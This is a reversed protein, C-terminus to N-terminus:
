KLQAVELGNKTGYGLIPQSNKIGIGVNYDLPISNAELPVTMVEWIGTFDDDIVGQLNDATKSKLLAGDTIWATRVTYSTKNFSSMFSSIYPVYNNGVKKVSISLNTGSSLYSDVTMVKKQAPKTYDQVYAYKLDGNGADYYAIHVGNSDDVVLDVHWGVFGDDIKVADSWKTSDSPTKNYTYFLGQDEESYWVVVAAPSTENTAGVAAYEGARSANATKVASYNMADKGGAIVHYRAGSTASGHNVFASSNGGVGAGYRFRVQGAASDYYVMYLANNKDTAIKPNMVRTSYFQGNYYGSEIAYGNNSSDYAWTSENGRTNRYFFLNNANRGGYTANGTGGTDGNMASGYLNGSPDVAVTTDYWQTFSTGLNFGNGASATTSKYAKVADSGSDYVFAITQNKDTGVRMTPYRVSTDSVVQTVNWVSVKCDDTLTSNNINNPQRNYYNKYLDYGSRGAAAAIFEGKAENSNENNLSRMGNVTVVVNGSTMTGSVNVSTSTGASAGNVSVAPSSGMNFGSLTFTERKTDNYYYVPYAGTASRGFISNNNGRKQANGVRNTIGTIYPVVDMKYIYATQKGSGDSAAAYKTSGDMSLISGGSTSVVPTGAGVALVQVKVDKEAVKAIKETNWNLVWSASHGESDFSSSDVYFSFGFDDWKNLPSSESASWSSTSATYAAMKYFNVASTGEGVSISELKAGSTGFMSEMGPISIYIATLRNKDSVNGKLVISGSVKPDRDNEGSTNTTSNFAEPLEDELEIHGQLDTFSSASASGYISNDNLGAWRFKNISAEPAESDRIAVGMYVNVKASQGSSTAETSDFITFSAQHPKDATCDTINKNLFDGLQMTIVATQANEESESGTLANGDADKLDVKSGSATIASGDNKKIDYTYFLSGNGGLIEPRIETKGKATIFANSSTGATLETIKNEWNKASTYLITTEDDDIKGNGNRDSGVTLNALRPANNSVYAAAAYTSSSYSNKEIISSTLTSGSSKIYKASDKDVYLLSVNKKTGADIAKVDAIESTLNDGTIAEYETITQNGVFGMSYNGAKDFVVYHLEVPGDPINKSFINAEWTYDSGSARLKEVMLDGDDPEPKSWYGYGYSNKDADATQLSGGSGETTTNDVLMALAVYAVTKGVPPNGSITVSSNETFATVKYMSGDIKILSNRHVQSTDTMGLVNLADSNRSVTKRLWYIGNDYVVTNDVATDSEKGLTKVETSKGVVVNNDTHNKEFMPNYVKNTKTGSVSDRRMFYFAVFGVGSQDSGGISSEKAKSTIKYFGSDNHVDPSIQYSTDDPTILEPPTNDYSLTITQRGVHLSNVADEAQIEFNLSGIGEATGLKYFFNIEKYLNYSGNEITVAESSGIGLAKFEDSENELTDKNLLILADGENQGAANKKQIKLSAIADKDTVKGTLYWQGSVFMDASYEKSATASAGISAAQVLYLDSIVPNDSDFKIWRDANISFKGDNDEAYVRLYVNNPKGETSLFENKTNIKEYWTSGDSSLNVLIAYDDATYGSEVSSTGAVWPSPNQEDKYTKRNYINYVFNEGNKVSALYDLDSAALSFTGTDNASGFTKGDWSSVSGSVYNHETSIIQMWVRQVAKNDNASGAVRVEAGQSSGDREPFSYSITPRDGQPDLLILHCEEKENGVADVGKIWLYMNVIKEFPNQSAKLADDDTIGWDILYDNFTEAHTGSVAEAGTKGDFNVTWSLSADKIQTYKIKSSIDAITNPTEVGRETWSTVPKLIFNGDDDKEEGTEEPKIDKSPSLAFYVKGSKSTTGQAVISGSSVQNSDPLNISVVPKTNDVTITWNQSTTKGANDTVTIEIKLEGSGTGCPIDEILYNKGEGYIGDDNTEVHSATKTGKIETGASDRLGSYAATVSRIGSSDDATLYLKITNYSGGFTHGSLINTWAPTDALPDWLNINSLSPAQTDVTSYLVSSPNTSDGYKNTGDTLYIASTVNATGSTFTKGYVDKVEFYIDKNGEYPHTTAENETVTFPISGSGANLSVTTFGGSDGLRYALTLNKEENDVTATLGDDDTVNFYLNDSTLWIRNDSSMVKENNKLMTSTVTVKPRDTNQDVRLSLPESYGINGASDKAACIIYFNAADTTADTFKSTDIDSLTWSSTGSFKGETVTYKTWGLSNTGSGTVENNDAPKEPATTVQKYYFGVIEKLEANDSASGTLTLLGNVDTTKTSSDADKPTSILVKPAETDVNVNAVTEKIFKGANDYVTASISINGSAGTFAKAKIKAEWKANYKSFTVKNEGEGESGSKTLTVTGYSNVDSEIDSEKIEHGNVSIVISKIGSRDGLGAVSESDKALGSIKIIESSLDPNTYITSKSNGTVEPAVMDVNLTFNNYIYDTSTVNDTTVPINYVTDVACNGAKDEALLVLYNSGSDFGEIEKEYNTTITAYNRPSTGAATLKIVKDKVNNGAPSGTYFVRKERITDATIKQNKGKVTEKLSENIKEINLSTDEDGAKKLNDLKDKIAEYEAGKFVYYYIAELGSADDEQTVSLPNTETAGTASKVDIFKGRITMSTNSGFTDFAYKGGVKKDEEATSSIEDNDNTGIRFFIDKGEGDILHIGVPATKDIEVSVPQESTNGANDTATIIITKIEGDNGSLTFNEFEWDEPSAAKNDTLGDVGSIELSKLGYRDSANGSIKFKKSQNKYKNTSENFSRTENNVYYKGASNKYAELSTPEYFTLTPILPPTVDRIMTFAAESNEGAINSGSVTIKSKGEGDPTFVAKWSKYKTANASNYNEFGAEDSKLDATTKVAAESDSTIVKGTAVDNDDFELSYASYQVSLNTGNKATYGSLNLENVGSQADKYLGYLTVAGEKIYVSELSDEIVKVDGSGVQYANTTLEAASTDVNIDIGDSDYDSINGAKDTVRLYLKNKGNVPLNVVGSYEKYEEEDGVKTLMNWKRSVNGESDSQDTGYEISSVGSLADTAKAVVTVSQSKFWKDSLSSLSYTGITISDDKFAPGTKDVTIDATKSVPNGAFDNATVTVTYKGEDTLDSAKVTYTFKGKLANEGATWSLESTHSVSSSDAKKIIELDLSEIQRDTSGDYVNGTITLSDGEAAGLFEKSSAFDDLSPACKDYRFYYTKSTSLGAKDSARVSITHPTDEKTNETGSGLKSLDYKYTWDESLLITDEAENDIKIKLEKLGSGVDSATGTIYQIGSGTFWKDTAASTEAANTVTIEPATKDFLVNLNEQTKKGDITENGSGDEVTIEFNYTKETSFVKSTWSGDNNDTFTIVDSSDSTNKASLSKIGNADSATVVLYFTDADNIVCSNDTVTEEEANEDKTKYVKISVAPAAQDVCFAQMKTESVNDANDLAKVYLTYKGEYLLNEESGSNGTGLYKTFSWDEGSFKDVREEWDSGPYEPEGDSTAKIAYLVTKMGISPAGDKAKGNFASSVTSLSQNGFSSDGPITIETVEPAKRDISVTLTKSSYSIGAKDKVTFVYEYVATTGEDPMDKEVLTWETKESNLTVSGRSSTLSDIGYEDSIKGRIEYEKGIAFNSDSSILNYEKEVFTEYTKISGDGNFESVPAYGEMTLEPKTAKYDWEVEKAESKLGVGDTVQVVIKKKGDKALVGGYSPNESDKFKGDRIISLSWSEAGALDTLWEKSTEVDILKVSIGRIGAGEDSATGSFRFSNEATDAAAPCVITDASPITNDVKITVFRARSYSSGSESKIVYYVSKHGALDEAPISDTYTVDIDKELSVNEMAEAGDAPAADFARYLKLDESGTYSYKLSVRFTKFTSDAEERESVYEPTGSATLDFLGDKPALYFAYIGSIDAEITNKKTDTGEVCVKYYKNPKLGPFNSTSLPDTKINTSNSENAIEIEEAASLVEGMDDCEILYMKLTSTDIAYGDRGPTVSITLTIGSDRDGNTVQYVTEAEDETSSNKMSEGAPLAKNLGIVTFTPNNKPNLQFTGTDIANENLAQLVKEVEDTVAASKSSESLGYTGNFMSYLETTKYSDLSKGNVETKELTTQFYYQHQCNGDKDSDTQESGDVPYRQAEDYAYIKCYLTKDGADKESSGYIATYEDTGYVAVTQDIAAPVNTKTITTIENKCEADSYVIVDIKNINNDDAAKGMINFIQGYTKIETESDEADKLYQLIVVPPTNDIIYSRAFSNKHGGNDTITVTAEYKGDLIESEEPKIQFYWSGEGITGDFNWVDKTNINKLVLKASTINGDDKWSGKIMFDDRIVANVGPSTIEGTPTETDVSEGLGIECSIVWITFLSLLGVFLFSFGKKM